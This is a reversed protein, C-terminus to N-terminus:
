DVKEYDRELTVTDVNSHVILWGVTYNGDFNHYYMRGRINSPFRKSQLMFADTKERPVPVSQKMAVPHPHSKHNMLFSNTGYLM